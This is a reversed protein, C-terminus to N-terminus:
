PQRRPLKTGIWVLVLLGTIIGTRRIRRKWRAQIQPDRAGPRFLHVAKSIVGKSNSDYEDDAAPHPIVIDAVSQQTTNTAIDAGQAVQLPTHNHLHEALSQFYRQMYLKIAGKVLAPSLHSSTKNTTFTGKYVVITQHNHEHLHITGVGHLNTKGDSTASLRFQYPYQQESITIQGHHSGTFPANDM